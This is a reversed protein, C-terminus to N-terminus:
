VVGAVVVVGDGAGVVVGDGAGVVVGDGAGEGSCQAENM